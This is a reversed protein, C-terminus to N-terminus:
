GKEGRMYLAIVEKAEKKAQLFNQLVVVDEEDVDIEERSLVRHYRDLVRPYKNRARFPRFVYPEGDRLRFSIDLEPIYVETVVHGEGELYWLPGEYVKLRYRIARM